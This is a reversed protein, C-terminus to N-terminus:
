ARDFLPVIGLQAALRHHNGTLSLVLSKLIRVLLWVGDMGGDREHLLQTAPRPLSITLSKFYISGVLPSSGSVQRNRIRPLPTVARRILPKRRQGTSCNCRM